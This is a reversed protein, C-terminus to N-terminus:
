LREVGLHQLALIAFLALVLLRVMRVLLDSVPPELEFPRLGQAVAKGVWRGVYVGAIIIVIAVFVKPGFKIALDIVTAKVQNLTEVPQGVVQNLTEVPQDMVGGMEQFSRANRGGRKKRDRGALAQIQTKGDGGGTARHYGA